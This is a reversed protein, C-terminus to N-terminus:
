YCLSRSKYQYRNWNRKSKCLDFDGTADRICFALACKGPNGWCAGDTNCKLSDKEPFQWIVALCHLRPKYKELMAIIQPWSEKGIKVWPYLTKIFKLILEHVQGVMEMFIVNGGHKIKNRRKWIVWMIIATMVRYVVVLKPTTDMTWWTNIIQKWHMDEIDIGPFVAFHRWLKTTIPATLFLYAM